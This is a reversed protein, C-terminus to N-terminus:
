IYISHQPWEGVVLTTTFVNIINQQTALKFASFAKIHSLMPGKGGYWWYGKMWHSIFLLQLYYPPGWKSKRGRDLCNWPLSQTVNADFCTRKIGQRQHRIVKSIEEINQQVGANLLIEILCIRRRSWYNSFRFENKTRDISLLCITTVDLKLIPWSRRRRLFRWKSAVQRWM